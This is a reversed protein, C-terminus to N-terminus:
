VTGLIWGPDLEDNHQMKLTAQRCKGCTQPLPFGHLLHTSCQTSRDWLGVLAITPEELHDSSVFLCNIASICYSERICLAQFRCFCEVVFLMM